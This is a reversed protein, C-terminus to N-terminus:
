RRLRWRGREVRMFYDSNGPKFNRSDSSHAEITQRVTADLSRVISRGAAKRIEETKEYISSLEGEGGLALLASRVDDVWRIKGTGPPVWNDRAALGSREEEYMSQENRASPNELAQQRKETEPVRKRAPTETSAGQDSLGMVALSGTEPKQLVRQLISNEDTDGVKWNSWILHLVDPTVDIPKRM